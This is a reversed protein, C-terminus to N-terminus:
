PSKINFFHIYKPKRKTHPTLYISGFSWKRLPSHGFLIILKLPYLNSPPVLSLSTKNVGWIHVEWHENWQQQKKNKMYCLAHHQSCTLTEQKQFSNLLSTTISFISKLSLNLWIVQSTYSCFIPLLCLNISFFPISTDPTDLITIWTHKYSQIIFLKLM